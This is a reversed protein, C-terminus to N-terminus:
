AARARTKRAAIYEKAIRAERSGKEGM